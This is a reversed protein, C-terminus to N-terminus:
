RSCERGATDRGCPVDGATRRDSCFGGPASCETRHHGGFVGAGRAGATHDVMWRGAGGTVKVLELDATRQPRELYTCTVTDGATLRDINVARTAADISAASTGLASQRTLSVFVFGLPAPDLEAFRWSTGGSATDTQGRIFSTSGSSAGAAVGVTSAGQYPQDNYSVNGQFAFSTAAPIPPAAGGADVVNKRIVITASAPPPTVYYAYCLVHRTGQPYSVSEVNDGNLNDIACRLAAFGYRGHFRSDNLPDSPTGGQVWLRNAQQALSAQTPSLAITV